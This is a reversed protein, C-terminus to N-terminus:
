RSFPFSVGARKAGPSDLARTSSKGPPGTSLFGDALVPSVPEIELKPLGWVGHLWQAWVGCSSLGPCGLAQAGFSSFDGCHSVWVRCCLLRQKSYNSFACVCCHLGLFCVFLYYNFFFFFLELPVPSRSPLQSPRHGPLGASERFSPLRGEGLSEEPDATGGCSPSCGSDPDLPPTPYAGLPSTPSQRRSSLM